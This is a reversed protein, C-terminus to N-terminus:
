KYMKLRCNLQSYFLKDPESTNLCRKGLELNDFDWVQVRVVKTCPEYIVTFCDLALTINAANAKQMIIELQNNIQTIIENQISEIYTIFRVFLTKDFDGGWVSYLQITMYYDRILYM